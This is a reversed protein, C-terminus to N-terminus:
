TPPGASARTPAPSPRRLDAARRRHAPRARGLRRAHEGLDRPGAVGPVVDGIMGRGTDRGSYAGFLVEGTAADRLAYGYPARRAARTCPSSRWARATAPRHRDRADRRRPRAPGVSAPSRAARPPLTTSRATSCAATTTSPPRATSSRRSATATWTPPASRTSGRPPSPASSRIPATAATRPQRQVPQVDADLRQRRVLRQSLRRGDWDYAVLTSRTYYGRAFVASPHEGDLYAVGALFRDVRNGPEIRSMAYDGWLLGDDHRGPEYDVTQLERGYSRRLRDPVRPRRPHLGRLQAAPEPREPRARLRRHLLRRAGRADARDVAPLRLAARHRVGGGPHRAVTRGAGGPPRALGPVDRGPPRLLRGQEAPLRGAHTYGARRDQAPMTIYRESVVRGRSDYRTTKTGPATKLMMESRGDGDFDYVLFQTYHAGARINVGLDIRHLLTGDARYTDVYVNGTYGVQSVDKANSPDWKVVYEYTGDGDMDGVSMDNAAYTYAEGAPTVGDAPKQLPLDVYAEAWPAAPQSRDGERGRVVSVVRYETASAYRGPRALQHQRHGDRDATRGRYVPFDPGRLGTPPQRDGGDGLLRWSLFVGDATTAAVLGRDLDELQVQPHSGPHADAAPPAVLTSALAVTAAAVVAIWRAARRNLSATM